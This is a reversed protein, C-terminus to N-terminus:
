LNHLAFQLNPERLMHQPDKLFVPVFAGVMSLHRQLLEDKLKLPDTPMFGWDGLESGEYGTDRIEDLVQQYGAAKGELDFELVGWSCPANAIQIM